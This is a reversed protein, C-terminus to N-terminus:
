MKVHLVKGIAIMGEQLDGSMEHRISEKLDRHAINKYEHFVQRLQEHSQSCLMMNFTSEDTGFTKEGAEYLKQAGNRWVVV